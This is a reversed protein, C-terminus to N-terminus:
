WNVFLEQLVRLDLAELSKIVKTQWDPEIKVLHPVAIVKAGSARAASVGTASDELILCNEIKAGLLHAAKLYGEPDPKTLQVDDETITM